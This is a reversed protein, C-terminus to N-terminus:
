SSENPTGKNEIEDRRNENQKGRTQNTEKRKCFKSMMFAILGGSSMTGAAILTMNAICAPVCLIERSMRDAASVRQVKAVRSENPGV